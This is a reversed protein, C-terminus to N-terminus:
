LWRKRTKYDIMRKRALELHRRETKRGKKLFAHLLVFTRKEFLFYLVRYNNSSYKIRLEWLGYYKNGQMKRSKQSGLIIGRSQLLDITYTIKARHKIPLNYIYDYAPYNGKLDKYFEINWTNM